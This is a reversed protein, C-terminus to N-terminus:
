SFLSSQNSAGAAKSARKEKKAPKSSSFVVFSPAAVTAVESLLEEGAFIDDHCAITSGIDSSGDRLSMEEQVPPAFIDDEDDNSANSFALDFLSTTEGDRELAEEEEDESL